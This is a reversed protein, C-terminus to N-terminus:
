RKVRDLYLKNEEIRSEPLHYVKSRDKNYDLWSDYPNIILNSNAYRHDHTVEKGIWSPINFEHDEAPLEIEAIILGENECLFKDVEWISGNFNFVYRIKKITKTNPTLKLLELGDEHPIEYEYEPKSIGTMKGKLTIYAKARGDTSPLSASCRIRTILDQTNTLYGQIINHIITYYSEKILQDLWHPDNVLYKREIEIPM